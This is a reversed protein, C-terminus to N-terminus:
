TSAIEEARALQLRRQFGDIANEHRREVVCFDFLEDIPITTM